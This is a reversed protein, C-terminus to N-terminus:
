APGGGDGAPTFCLQNGTTTCSGKFCSLMQRAPSSVGEPAAETWGPLQERALPAGAGKQTGQGDAEWRGLVGPSGVQGWGRPNQRSGGVLRETELRPALSSHRAPVGTRITGTHALSRPRESNPFHTLAPFCVLSPAKGILMPVTVLTQPEAM